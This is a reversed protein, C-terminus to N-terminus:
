PSLFGSFFRIQASKQIKLVGLKKDSGFNWFNMKLFNRNKPTEECDDISGFSGFSSSNKIIDQWTV